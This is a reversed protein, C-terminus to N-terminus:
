AALAAALDAKLDEAHELGRQPARRAARAALDHAEGVLTAPVVDDHGVPVRERGDPRRREDAEEPLGAVIDVVGRDDRELVVDHAARSREGAQERVM